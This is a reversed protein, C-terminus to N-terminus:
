EVVSGNIAMIQVSNFWSVAFGKITITDGVALAALQDHYTKENTSKVFVLLDTTGDTITLKYDGKSGSAAYAVKVTMNKLTVVTGQATVSNLTSLETVEVPAIEKFYEDLVELTTITQVEILGKYDTKSGVVKVYDGVKITSYDAKSNKDFYLTISQKGDSIYVYQGLIGTVNGGTEVATGNTMEYISQISDKVTPTEPEPDPTESGNVFADYAAAREEENACVKTDATVGAVKVAEPTATLVNGEADLYLNQDFTIANGGNNHVYKQVNAFTNYKVVFENGAVGNEMLGDIDIDTGEFYNNYIYANGFRIRLLAANDNTVGGCDAVNVYNGVFTTNAIGKTIWAFFQGIENIKCNEVTLSGNDAGAQIKFTTNMGYIVCNSLVIDKTAATGEFYVGSQGAKGGQGALTVGDFKLFATNVNSRVDKTINIKTEQERTENANVGANVGYVTIKKSIVVSLEQEGAAVYIVDDDVANTIADNLAKFFKIGAIEQGDYETNADVIKTANLELAKPYKKGLLQAAKFSEYAALMAEKTEYTTEKTPDPNYTKETIGGAYINHDTVVTAGNGANTLKFARTFYNYKINFQAGAVGDNFAFSNGDMDLENGMINVVQTATAKQVRIGCNHLEQSLGYIKNELIEILTADNSFQGIFISYNDTAAVLENNAIRIEGKVNYAIIQETIGSAVTVTNTLYCGEITLNNVVGEFDICDRQATSSGSNVYSNLIKVDSCAAEAGIVGFRNVTEGCNWAKADAYVHNLTVNKSGGLDVAGDQTFKVGDVVVNEGKVTFRSTFEAEAKREANGHVGYNPGIITVNKATITVADAYTGEAVYIIDNEVAKELASSLTAFLDTGFTLEKKNTSKTTSGEAMSAAEVSVFKTANNEEGVSVEIGEKAWSAKLTVNDVVQYQGAEYVHKGDSWGKFVYEERTPAPLEIMATFEQDKWEVQQNEDAYVGGNVDLTVTYKYRYKLVISLDLVKRWADDGEKSYKQELVGNNIRFVLYDGDEGKEGPDGKEGPEGTDGKNGPDGQPGKKGPEGQEGNNGDPGKEGPEGKPGPEGQPGQAGCGVLAIASVLLLLVLLFRKLKM